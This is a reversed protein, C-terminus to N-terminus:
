HDVVVDAHTITVDVVVFEAVPVTATVVDDLTVNVVAAVPVASQATNANTGPTNAVVYANFGVVVSFTGNKADAVDALVACTPGNMIIVPTPVLANIDSVTYENVFRGVVDVVGVITM